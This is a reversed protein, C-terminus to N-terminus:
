LPSDRVTVLLAGLVKEPAVVTVKVAVSSSMPLLEVQVAVSLTWSVVAGIIVQGESVVAVASTVSVLTDKFRDAVADSSHPVVVTVLSAGPLKGIPLLVTVKVAVSEEPFVLLQVVVTVTFEPVPPPVLLPEVVDDATDAAVDVPPSSVPVVWCVPSVLLSPALSVLVSSVLEQSPIWSTM